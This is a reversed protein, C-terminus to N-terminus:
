RRHTYHLPFLTQVGLYRLWSRFLLTKTSKNFIADQSKCPNNPGQFRCARREAHLISHFSRRFASIDWDSVFYCIKRRFKFTETIRNAPITEVRFNSHAVKPTYFPTCPANTRRSIEILILIVSIEDFHSLKCKAIKLSQKSGSIPM